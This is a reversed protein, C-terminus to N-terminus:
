GGATGSSLPCASTFPTPMSPSGSENRGIRRVLDVDEMLPLRSPIRRPARLARRSILLGQDGYPLGLLHPMALAALRESGAPARPEFRM